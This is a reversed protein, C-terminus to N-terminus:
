RWSFLLSIVGIAASQEINTIIVIYYKNAYMKTLSKTKIFKLWKFLILLIILNSAKMKM